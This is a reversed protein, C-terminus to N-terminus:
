PNNRSAISRDYLAWLAGTRYGVICRKNFSIHVHTCMETLFHHMNPCKKSANHYKHSPDIALMSISYSRSKFKFSNHKMLRLRNM